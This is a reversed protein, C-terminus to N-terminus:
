KEIQLLERLSARWYRNRKCGPFLKRKLVFDGNSHRAKAINIFTARSVNSAECLAICEGWTMWDPEDTTPPPM